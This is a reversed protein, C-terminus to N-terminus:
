SYWLYKELNEFTVIKGGLGPITTALTHYLQKYEPFCSIMRQHFNVAVFGRSQKVQKLLALIQQYVETMGRPKFYLPVADMFIMPVVVLANGNQDPPTAYFPRATGCFFGNEQVFGCTSDVTLGAALYAASTKEGYWKLYHQRGAFCKLASEKELTDCEQQLLHPDNAAAFSGHLGLQAKCEGLLRFANQMRPQHLRYNPNRGLWRQWFSLKNGDTLYAYIFFVPTFLRELAIQVIESFGFYNVRGFLFRWAAKFYFLSVAPQHFTRLTNYFFMMASKINALISPNVIDVDHSLVVSFSEELPEPQLGFATLIEGEFVDALIDAHPIFPNDLGEYSRPKQNLLAQQTHCYDQYFVSLQSFYDRDIVRGVSDKVDDPRGGTHTSPIYVCQHDAPLVKISGYVLILSSCKERSLWIHQFHFRNLTALVMPDVADGVLQIFIRAKM